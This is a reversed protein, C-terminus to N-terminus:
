AAEITKTFSVEGVIERAKRKPLLRFRAALTDAPLNPLDRRVVVQTGSVYEPSTNLVADNLKQTLDSEIAMAKAPDLTGDDLVPLDDNIYLQLAAYLTECAIDMVTGRQTYLFDSGPAALLRGETIYYGGASLTRLTTVRADTLGPTLSEDRYLGSSGDPRKVIRPLGGVRVRGLDESPPRSAWRLAVPWTAQRKIYGGAADSLWNCPSHALCVRPATVDGIAAILTADVAGLNAGCLGRAYRRQTTSAAAAALLTELAVAFAATAAESAPEGLAWVFRWRDPLAAIAEFAAELAEVTYAPPTCAFAFSDGAEFALHVGAGNTFVINVGTSPVSYSQPSAGAPIAISESWTDGDDLSYRFAGDGTVVSSTSTLIEVIVEYGDVPVSSTTAITGDSSGVRTATVEGASGTTGTTARCAIVTVGEGILMSAADVLQGSTFTDELTATDATVLPTNVTGSAATGILAVAGIPTGGASLAGDLVQLDVRPLTM